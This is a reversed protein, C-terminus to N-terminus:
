NQKKNDKKALYSYAFEFFSEDFANLKAALLNHKSCHFAKSLGACSVRERKKRESKGKAKTGGYM